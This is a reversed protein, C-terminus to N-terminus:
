VRRELERHRISVQWGKNALARGLMEAVSVSRHKGGTCGFSVTLYSKGEERFAPLLDIMLAEIKDFFSAFRPDSSVYSAVEDSQGTLARLDPVWHPNQLFRCDFVMDAGRPVGRKYSFSQISLSLQLSDRKSFWDALEARLDHPSLDSTDILFEAQSRLDGLMLQEREIGDQLSGSDALPHRRRTESFRRILVDPRCDIYLLDIHLDPSGEFRGILDSLANADFDRTRADVGLALPREPAPGDLIRPIFSLPLNDIAEFGFDELAGIATSRGAGSPGTVLVVRQEIPESM